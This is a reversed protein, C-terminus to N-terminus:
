EERNRYFIMQTVRFLLWAMVIDIVVATATLGIQSVHNGRVAILTQQIPYGVLYMEYSLEFIACRWKTQKTGIVLSCIVYPLLLLLGYSFLGLPASAVLIVCAIVGLPIHIAIKDQYDCCLTGGFFIGVPRIVSVIFEADPLFLQAGLMIGFAGLFGLWHLVREGKQSHPLFSCIWTIVMLLIYCAFEVPMTWLAGNFTTITNDTFVGPLNHIPILVLNALYIYTEKNLYYFSLSNGGCLSLVAGWVFVAFFTVIWIQPFIRKCRKRFFDGLCSCHEMSRNVYLGSLFFFIAVALGGFSSEGRTFTYCVDTGRDTLVPTHSIIVFIAAIFRLLVVNTSKKSLYESLM